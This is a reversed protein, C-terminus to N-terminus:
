GAATALVERQARFTVFDREALAEAKVLTGGDATHEALSQLLDAMLGIGVGMPHCVIARGKAAVSRFGARGGPMATPVATTSSPDARADKASYAM